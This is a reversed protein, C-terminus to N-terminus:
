WNPEIPPTYDDIDAHLAKEILDAVDHRHRRMFYFQVFMLGIFLLSMSPIRVFFTLGLFIMVLTMPIFILYATPALNVSATILTSDTEWRKAYGRAETPTYGQGWKKLYFEFTDADEPTLDVKVKRQRLLGTEEERKLLKLSTELPFPAVFDLYVPGFLTDVWEPNGSGLKKPTTM